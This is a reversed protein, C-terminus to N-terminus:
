SSARRPGVDIFQWGIRSTNTRLAAAGYHRVNKDIKGILGSVVERREDRVTPAGHLGTM